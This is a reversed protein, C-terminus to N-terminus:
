DKTDLSSMLGGGIVISIVLAFVAAWRAYGKGVAYMAFMTSLISVVGNPLNLLASQKSNYGFDRILTASYTTIAGGPLSLHALILGKEEKSLFKAVQLKAPLFFVVDMGVLANCLRVILFLNEARFAQVPSM